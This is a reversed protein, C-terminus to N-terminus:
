NVWRGIKYGGYKIERYMSLILIQSAILGTVGMAWEDATFSQRMEAMSSIPYYIFGYWIVGVMCACLVLRFTRIAQLHQIDTCYPKEKEM